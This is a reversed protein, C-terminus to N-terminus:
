SHINLMGIESWFIVSRAAEALPWAQLLESPSIRTPHGMRGKRQSPHPLKHAGCRVDVSSSPLKILHRVKNCAQCKVVLFLHETSSPPVPKAEGRQSIM